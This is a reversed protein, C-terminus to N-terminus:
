GLGSVGNLGNEYEMPTRYGLTSHLRVGDYYKMYEQMDRIAAERTHYVSDGIWEEKYSKFFQEMVANDWCNGKRSMSPRIGHQKLLLQYAASAYQSGRDSHHLLGAPPRRLNIAMMLARIVLAQTMTKDMCWGVIRRSCLDMVVALYLWGQVTWVYTIDTVWARNPSAPNFERNLVNGAVPLDHRSQTTIRYRRKIKVLLGLRKMLRRVRYRGVIHGDQRLQRVMGRSGLSDRSQAFLAKMRSCLAFEEAGVVTAGRQKWDYYASKTVNLVRCMLRVPYDNAWKAM